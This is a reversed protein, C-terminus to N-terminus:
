QFYVNPSPTTLNSRFSKAANNIASENKWNPRNCGIATKVLECDIMAIDVTVM